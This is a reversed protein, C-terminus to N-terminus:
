PKSEQKRLFLRRALLVSFAAGVLVGLPEALRFAVDASSTAATAFELTFAMWAFQVVVSIVSVGLMLRRFLLVAIGTIVFSTIAGALLELIWFQGSAFIRGGHLLRRV